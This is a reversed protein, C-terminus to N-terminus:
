AGPTCSLRALSGPSNKKGGESSLYLAGAPGWGVGEGQAEELASLDVRIPSRVEGRLLDATRYIDLAGLMRLAIWRGDPSASAGTIRDKRPTAAGVLEAVRELLVQAGPRLPQPFRYVAIPGTEGKTM